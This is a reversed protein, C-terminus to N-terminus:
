FPVDDQPVVMTAQNRQLASVPAEYANPHVERVTNGTRVTGDPQPIAYQGILLKAIKGNMPYMDSLTPITTPVPANFIKFLLMLMNKAKKSREPKQDFVYLKQWLYRNMFEGECIKWKFEINPMDGENISIGDVFATVTTDDPILEMAQKFADKEEGTIGNWFDQM